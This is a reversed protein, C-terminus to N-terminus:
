RLPFLKYKEYHNGQCCLYQDQNTSTHLLDFM